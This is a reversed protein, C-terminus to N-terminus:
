RGARLIRVDGNLTDFTLLPGGRGIRVATSGGARYVVRGDAKTRSTTQVPLPEVDFDTLLDGHFTKLRLDASLDPPFTVVVSGNVTRFESADRPSEAFTVTVPGNVTIARGSGRVGSVEVRGNVNSVDFDAFAGTAVIDSGNITCLRIRTGHPVVAVLDIRVRYRQRDWWSDRPSRNSEGCVDEREHVVAAVTAGRPSTDLRVDRDADAVDSEREADTRRTVSLKVDRRDETTVRITGNITRLDVTRTGAEAFPLTVTSSMERHIPLDGQPPAAQAGAGGLLLAIAPVVLTRTKM